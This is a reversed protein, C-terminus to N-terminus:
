TSRGAQNPGGQPTSSEAQRLATVISEVCQEVTLALTDLSLYNALPPEYSPVHFHDRNSVRRTHLYVELVLDRAKLEERLWRHPSVFSAVVIFGGAALEVARRQATRVNLIRGADSYDTNGTQRRLEEGDLEVVRRACDRLTKAVAKALTSKGSGPQGTFWIIM